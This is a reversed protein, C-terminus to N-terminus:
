SEIIRRFPDGRKALQRVKTIDPRRQPAPRQKTLLADWEEPSLHEKLAALGAFDWEASPVRRGEVTALDVIDQRKEAMKRELMVEIARHYIKLERLDEDTQGWLEALDEISLAALVEPSWEVAM